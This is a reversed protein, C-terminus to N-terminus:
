MFKIYSSLAKKCRVGDQFDQKMTAHQTPGNSAESPQSM